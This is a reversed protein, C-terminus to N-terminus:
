AQATIRSTLTVTHTIIIPAVARASGLILEYAGPAIAGPLPVSITRLPSFSSPNRSTQVLKSAFAEITRLSSPPLLATTRNSNGLSAGQPTPANRTADDFPTEANCKNIISSRPVTFSDPDFLVM